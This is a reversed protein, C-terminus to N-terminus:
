RKTEETVTKIDNYLKKLEWTGMDVLPEYMFANLHISGDVMMAARNFIKRCSEKNSDSVNNNYRTILERTLNKAKNVAEDYQGDTIKSIVYKEILLRSGIALVLNSNLDFRDDSSSAIVEAEAIIAEHINDDLEFPCGNIGITGSIISDIERVKADRSLTHLAGTLTKYSPNNDGDRFEILNRALPITAIWASKDTTARGKIDSFIRPNFMDVVELENNEKRAIIKFQSNDKPFIKEYVLRFFDFNHTLAIVYLNDNETVLEQLYEFFAYKNKYDFSEVIDDLVVLIEQDTKLKQKIEFLINLIYLAKREGNSLTKGLIDLRNNSDPREVFPSGSVRPNKFEISFMPIIEDNVIADKKNDIKIKYPLSSFRENFVDVMDEWENECKEALELAQNIDKTAAEQAKILSKIEELCDSLYGYWMNKYFRDEDGMFQLIDRRSPDEFIRRADGNIGVSFDKILEELPKKLSPDEEIIKDFDTKLHADLEDVSSIGDETIGGDKTLAVKHEADFFKSKKIEQILKYASSSDFGNRYYTPSSRLKDYADSLKKYFTKYKDKTIFRRFQSSAFISFAIDCFQSNGKEIEGISSKLLTIVAPLTVTSVADKSVFQRYMREILGSVNDQKTKTTEALKQQFDSYRGSVDKLAKEYIMKVEDNSVLSAAADSIETQGDYSTFALINNSSVGSVECKGPIRFIEDAIDQGESYRALTKAFSSKMTGNQAYLGYFRCMGNKTNTFTFGHRFKVIGYSNEINIRIEKSM